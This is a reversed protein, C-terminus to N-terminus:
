RVQNLWGSLGLGGVVLSVVVWTSSGVKRQVAMAVTGLDASKNPEIPAICLCVQISVYDYIYIHEVADCSIHSHITTDHIIELPWIPNYLAQIPIIYPNDPSYVPILYPKPIYM